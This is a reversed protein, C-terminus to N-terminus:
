KILDIAKIKYRGKLLKTTGKKFATNRIHHSSLEFEEKVETITNYIVEEGTQTDTVIYSYQTKDKGKRAKLKNKSSTLLQLNDLRNNLTNSDIHDVEMGKPVEGVFTEYILRHVLVKKRYNDNCLIVFRYKLPTGVLGGNLFKENVTQWHGGYAKNWFTRELSKVRGLNSVQYIGEFGKVDKWIEQEIIIRRETIFWM